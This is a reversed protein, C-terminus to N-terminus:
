LADLSFSLIRNEEAVQVQSSGLNRVIELLFEPHQDSYRYVVPPIFLVKGSPM